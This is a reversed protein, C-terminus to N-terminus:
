AFAYIGLAHKGPLWEKPCREHQNHSYSEPDTHSKSVVSVKFGLSAGIRQRQFLVM